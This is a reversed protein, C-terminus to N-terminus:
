DTPHNKSYTQPRLSIVSGINDAVIKLGRTLETMDDGAPVVDGRDWHMAIEGLLLNNPDKVPCALFSKVGVRELHERGPNYSLSATDALWCSGDLMSSSFTALSGMPLNVSLDGTARGPRAIANTIDARLMSMGTVGAVGNHIVALRIRASTPALTLAKTLLQDKVRNDNADQGIRAQTIALEIATRKALVDLPNGFLVVSLTELASGEHAYHSIVSIGGLLLGVTLLPQATWRIIFRAVHRHENLYDFAVKIAGVALEASVTRNSRKSVRSSIPEAYTTGVM